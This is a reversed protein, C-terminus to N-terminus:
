GGILIFLNINFFFFFLLLHKAIATAARSVKREKARPHESAWCGVALVQGEIGRPSDRGM